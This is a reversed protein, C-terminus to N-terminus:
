SKRTPNGANYVGMATIIEDFKSPSIANRDMWDKIEEIVKRRARKLGEKVDFRKESESCLSIGMFVSDPFFLKTEGPITTGELNEIVFLVAGNIKRPMKAHREIEESVYDDYADYQFPKGQKKLPKRRAPYLGFLSYRNGERKLNCRYVRYFVNPM